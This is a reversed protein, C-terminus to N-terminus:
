AILEKNVTITVNAQLTTGVAAIAQFQEAAAMVINPYFQARQEGAPIVMTDIVNTATAATGAKAWRITKADGTSPQEVTVQLITWLQGTPVAGGVTTNTTAIPTPGFSIKLGM